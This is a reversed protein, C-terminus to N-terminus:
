SNRGNKNKRFIIGFMVAIFMPIYIIYGPVYIIAELDKSIKKVIQHIRKIM